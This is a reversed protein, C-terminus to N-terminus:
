QGVGLLRALDELTILRYTYVVDCLAFVVSAV